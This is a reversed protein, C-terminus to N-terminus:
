LVIEKKISICGDEGAKMLFLKTAPGVDLVTIEKQVPQLKRLSAFQASVLSDCSQKWYSIAQYSAGCGNAQGPAFDLDVLSNGSAGAPLEMLVSFLRRDAPGAPAMLVAGAQPGFGLFRTLQEVRSACQLIGRQVAARTVPNAGDGEGAPNAEPAAGSGQAFVGLSTGIVLAAGAIRVSQFIFPKLLNL